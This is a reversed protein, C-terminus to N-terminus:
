DAPGIHHGAGGTEPRFRMWSPHRRKQRHNALWQKVRLDSRSVTTTLNSWRM